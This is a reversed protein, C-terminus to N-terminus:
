EFAESDPPADEPLSRPRTSATHGGFRALITAVTATDRPDFAALLACAVDREDRIKELQAVDPVKLALGEDLAATRQAVAQYLVSLAAEADLSAKDDEWYRPEFPEFPPDETTQPPSDVAQDIAFDNNRIARVLMMRIVDPLEMGREAAMQHARRAMEPSLRLRIFPSADM